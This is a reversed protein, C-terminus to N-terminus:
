IFGGVNEWDVSEVGTFGTVTLEKDVVLQDNRFCIRFNLNTNPNKFKIIEANGNFVFGSDLDSNEIKKSEADLIPDYRVEM